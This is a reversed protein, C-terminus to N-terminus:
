DLGLAMSLLDRLKEFLYPDAQGWALAALGVQHGSSSLPMVCVVEERELHDDMGLAATTVTTVLSGPGRSGRRAFVRLIDEDGKSIVFSRVGLLPLQEELAVALEPLGAGRARDLCARTVTRLHLAQLAQNEREAFLAVNALAIRCEQFL